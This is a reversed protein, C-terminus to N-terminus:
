ELTIFADAVETVGDIASVVVVVVVVAVAVIVVIPVVVIVVDDGAALSLLLADVFRPRLTASVALSISECIIIM